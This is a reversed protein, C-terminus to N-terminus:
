NRWDQGHGKRGHDGDGGEWIICTCHLVLRGRALKSGGPQLDARSPATGSDGQIPAQTESHAVVAVQIDACITSQKGRCKIVQKVKARKGKKGKWYGTCEKTCGNTEQLEADPREGDHNGREMRESRWILLKGLSSAGDQIRRKVAHGIRVLRRPKKRKMTVIRSAISVQGTEIGNLCPAATLGSLM